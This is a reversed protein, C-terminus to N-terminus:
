CRERLITDASENLKTKTYGVVQQLEFNEMDIAYATIKRSIKLATTIVKEKLTAKLLATGTNNVEQKERFVQIKTIHDKLTDCYFKYRPVLQIIQEDTNELGKEVVLYMSLKKEQSRNM